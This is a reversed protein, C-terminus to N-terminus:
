LRKLSIKNEYINPFMIVKLNEIFEYIELKNIYTLDNFDSDYKKILTGIKNFDM